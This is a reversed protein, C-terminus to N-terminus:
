RMVVKVMARGNTVKRQVIIGSSRVNHADFSHPSAILRGHLDYLQRAGAILPNNNISSAPTALTTGTRMLIRGDLAPMTVQTMTAGNNVAPDQTGTLAKFTGGLQVTASASTSSNVLSIGGDFNRRWVETGSIIVAAGTPHGLVANYEDYWLNEQWGSKLYLGNNLLAACLGMRMKKLSTDGFNKNPVCTMPATVPSACWSDYADKWTQFPDGYWTGTTTIESLDDEFIRGDVWATYPPNLTNGFYDFQPKRNMANGVIFADGVREHLKQLFRRLGAEYRRDREAPADAVGDRDLDIQDCDAQGTFNKSVHTWCNDMFIGDYYALLNTQWANADWNVVFDVTTTDAFNYVVHNGGGAYLWLSGDAKHLLSKYYPSSSNDTTFTSTFPGGYTSFLQALVKVQPNIARADSLMKAGCWNVINKYGDICVTLRAIKAATVDSAASSSGPWWITFTRPFPPNYTQAASLSTANTKALSTTPNSTRLVRYTALRTVDWARSPSSKSACKIKLAYPVDVEANTTFRHTVNGNDATMVAGMAAFSKDATDCKCVAPEDTTVQFSIVPTGPPLLRSSPSPDSISAGCVVAAAVM